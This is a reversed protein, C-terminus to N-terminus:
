IVYSIIIVKLLVVCYVLKCIFSSCMQNPANCLTIKSMFIFSLLM